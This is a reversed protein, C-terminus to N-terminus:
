WRWRRHQLDPLLRQEDRQLGPLEARRHHEEGQRRELFSGRIALGKRKAVATFEQMSGPWGCAVLLFGSKIKIAYYNTSHYTLPLINMHTSLRLDFTM